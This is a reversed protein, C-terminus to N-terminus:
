AYIISRSATVIAGTGHRGFCPRVDDAAGGQAGFGPVLFVQQPMIERLREADRPKTAGVVAGLLSFGSEGIYRGKAEGADAILRAVSEAVSRGNNLTQSQVTDGGPNSTRVLAFLGKGQEAAVELFPELGDVGLYSNVTLADPGLLKGTDEFAHDALCGAAYHKSSAGIDGRKADGIVILGLQRAEHIVKHYAEVGAWLYREFCASQVKVAPVHPAVAKLVRVSFDFLANAAVAASSPPVPHDGVISAPLKEYVPDLGVCIPGGKQQCALTLRDAFHRTSM